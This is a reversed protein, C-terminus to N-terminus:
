VESEMLKLVDDILKPIEQETYHYLEHFHKDTCEVEIINPYAIILIISYTKKSEYRLLGYTRKLIVGTTVFWSPKYVYIEKRIEDLMYIQSQAGFRVM